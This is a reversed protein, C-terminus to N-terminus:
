SGSILIHAVLSRFRAVMLLAHPGVSVARRLELSVILSARSDFDFSAEKTDGRKIMSTRQKMECASYWTGLKVTRMNLSHLM